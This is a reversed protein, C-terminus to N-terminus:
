QRNLLRSVLGRTRIRALRARATRLDQQDREAAVLQDHLWVVEKRAQRAEQVADDVQANVDALHDRLVEIEARLAQLEGDPDIM